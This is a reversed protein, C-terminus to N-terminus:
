MGTAPTASASTLQGERAVPRSWLRAYPIIPDAFQEEDLLQGKAHEAAAGGQAQVISIRRGPGVHIVAATKAGNDTNLALVPEEAPCRPEEGDRTPQLLVAQELSTLLPPAIGSRAALEDITLTEPTPRATVAEVLAEDSSELEGELFRRIVTLTFGRQQLGKIRGLRDLHAESYWTVRGERRPPELLGKGQYFRITDVAVGGAQALQEIRYEV